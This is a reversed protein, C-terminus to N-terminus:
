LLTEKCRTCTKDYLTLNAYNKHSAYNVMNCIINCLKCLKGYNVSSPQIYAKSALSCCAHFAFWVFLVFLIFLCFLCVVSGRRDAMSDFFVWREDPEQGCKAFTVYHSTKICVVAFLEMSTIVENQKFRPVTRKLRKPEHQTRATHRHVTRNCHDCFYVFPSEWGFSHCCERCSFSAEMECM